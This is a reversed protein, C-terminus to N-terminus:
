VGWRYKRQLEGQSVQEQRALWTPLGTRPDVGGPYAGEAMHSKMAHRATFPTGYEHGLAAGIGMGALAGGMRIPMSAPLARRMAIGAGLGAAAGGVTWGREQRGINHELSEHQAGHPGDKLYLGAGIAAPVGGYLAASGLLSIPGAM